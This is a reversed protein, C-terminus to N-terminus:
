CFLVNNEFYISVISKQSGKLDCDPFNQLDESYLHLSNKREHTDYEWDHYFPQVSPLMLRAKGSSYKATKTQAVLSFAKNSRRVIHNIMM